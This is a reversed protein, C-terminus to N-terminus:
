VKDCGSEVVSHDSILKADTLLGYSIADRGDAKGWLVLNKGQQVVMNSQLTNALTFRDAAGAQMLLLCTFAILVSKTWTM